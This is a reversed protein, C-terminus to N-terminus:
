SEGKAILVKNKISQIVTKRKEQDESFYGFVRVAEQCEDYPLIIDTFELNPLHETHGELFHCLSQFRIKDYIFCSMAEESSSIDWAINIYSQEKSAAINFSIIIGITDTDKIRVVRGPVCLTMVMNEVSSSM